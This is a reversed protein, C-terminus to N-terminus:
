DLNFIGMCVGEYVAFDKHALSKRGDVKEASAFYL